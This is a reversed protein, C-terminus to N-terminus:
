TICAVKSSFSPDVMSDSHLGHLSLQEVMRPDKNLFGTSGLHHWTAAGGRFCHGAYLSHNIGSEVLASCLASVFHTRTLLRGDKLLFLVWPVKGEPGPVGAYSSCPM